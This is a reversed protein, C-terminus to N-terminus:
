TRNTRYTNDWGIAAVTGKLRTQDAHVRDRSAPCPSGQVSESEAIGMLSGDTRGPRTPPLRREILRKMEDPGPQGHSVEILKSVVSIDGAQAKAYRGGGPIYTDM